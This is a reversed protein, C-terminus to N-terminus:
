AGRELAERAFNRWKEDPICDALTRLDTLLEKIQEDQKGITEYADLLMKHTEDSKPETVERVRLVVTQNRIFPLQQEQDIGQVVTYGRYGEDIFAITFERLKDHKATM